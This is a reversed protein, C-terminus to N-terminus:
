AHNQALRRYVRELAMDVRGDIIRTRGEILCGGPDIAVDAVWAAERGGTVRLPEDGPIPLTSITALDSPHLRIRVPEDVPFEALARRVLEGFAATNGRVERDLIQRAVAVALAAINEEAAGTWQSETERIEALAKEAAAVASHLRARETEEGRRYGEEIGAAMGDERGAEYGLAHAEALAESLLREHEAAAIVPEPSDAPVAHRGDAPASQPAPDQAAVERVLMLPPAVLEEFPCSAVRAATERGSLLSARPWSSM